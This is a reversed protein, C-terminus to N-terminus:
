NLVPALSVLLVLCHDLLDLDFDLRGVLKNQRRPHGLQRHHCLHLALVYTLGSTSLCSQISVTITEFIDFFMSLPQGIAWGLLIMVPLVFLSIQISSGIQLALM